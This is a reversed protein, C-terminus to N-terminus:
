VRFSGPITVSIECQHLLTVKCVHTLVTQTQIASTQSQLFYCHLGHESHLNNKYLRSKQNRNQRTLGNPCIYSSKKKKKKGSVKLLLCRHALSSTYVDDCSSLSNFGQEPELEEQQSSM